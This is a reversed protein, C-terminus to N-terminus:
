IYIYRYLPLAANLSGAVHDKFLSSVFIDKLKKDGKFGTALIVLDAKLPTKDEGNVSVGQQCFGFQADCKKLIISGKEVRYYFKEPVTSILCSSIEQLFSHMPVM